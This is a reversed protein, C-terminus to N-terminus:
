LSLKATRRARTKTKIQCPKFGPLHLSYYQEFQIGGNPPLIFGYWELSGPSTIPAQRFQYDIKLDKAVLHEGDFLEANTYPM